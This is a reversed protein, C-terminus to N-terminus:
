SIILYGAKPRSHQVTITSFTDSFQIEHPQFINKMDLDIATVHGPTLPFFGTPTSWERSAPTFIFVNKQGGTGGTGGGAGEGSTFIEIVQIRQMRLPVPSGQDDIVIYHPDATGNPTYIGIYAYLAEKRFGASPLRGREDPKIKCTGQVQFM